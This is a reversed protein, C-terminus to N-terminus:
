MGEDMQRSIRRWLSCTAVMEQVLAAWEALADVGGYFQMRTEGLDIDLPASPHRQAWYARQAATARLPWQVTFRWQDGDLAATFEPFAADTRAYIVGHKAEIAVFGAARMAGQM